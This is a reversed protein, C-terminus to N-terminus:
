RVGGAGAGEFSGVVFAGTTDGGGDGSGAGSSVAVGGEGETTAM